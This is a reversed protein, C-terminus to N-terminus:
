EDDASEVGLGFPRDRVAVLLAELAAIFQAPAPADARLSCIPDGRNVWVGSKKLFIVGIPDPFPRSGSRAVEQAATLEARIKGLNPAFFGNSEACLVRSHAATTREVLEDFAAASSGQAKLHAHLILRLAQSNSQPLPTNTGVALSAITRCVESHFALLDTDTGSVVRHLAVLAEARGIFPQYPYRADTLVTFAQIGVENAVQRFIKANRQATEVDTGFNGWPAVRIDLVMRKVGVAIKKALISAVVLSPVDQYGLKRRLSFLKGDLPAIADQALFHAYGCEHLVASIESASLSTRYGSLQALCDIGGAPRGPVGLKPVAAGFAVCYLPTLLTSLSSPAGTSPVDVCLLPHSTLQDGSSALTRALRSVMLPDPMSHAFGRVVRELVPEATAMTLQDIDDSLHM